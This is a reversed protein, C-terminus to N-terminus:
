ISLVIPMCAIVAFKSTWIELYISLHAHNLSSPIVTILLMDYVYIRGIDNLPRPAESRVAARLEDYPMYIPFAVTERELCVGNDDFFVCSGYGYGESSTAIAMWSFCSLALAPFWRHNAAQQVHHAKFTTLLSFAIPIALLTASVDLLSFTGFFVEILLLVALCVLIWGRRVARSTSASQLSFGVLLFLALAHVFSPLSGASFDVWSAHYDPLPLGLDPRVAPSRYFGYYLVGVVLLLASVLATPLWLTYRHVVKLFGSQKM